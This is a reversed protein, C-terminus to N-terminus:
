VSKKRIVPKKVQPADAKKDAVKDRRVRYKVYEQELEDWEMQWMKNPTM